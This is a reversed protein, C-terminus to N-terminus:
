IYKTIQIKRYGDYRAKKNICIQLHKTIEKILKLEFGKDRISIMTGAATM